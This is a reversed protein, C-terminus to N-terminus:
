NAVRYIVGVGGSLSVKGRNGCGCMGGMRVWVVLGVLVSRWYM